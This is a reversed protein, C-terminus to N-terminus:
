YKLSKNNKKIKKKTLFKITKKVNPFINNWLFFSHAAQNVLMGIGNFVKNSGFNKCFKMFNTNKEKYFMDYCITEKRIINEPILPINNFIGASTANVIINFKMQNLNKLTISEINGFNQFEKSLIKAKNFTRNTIFINCGFKLLPYIIGRAAGGAGIILINFKRKVIKKLLLDSLFGIGDTNDGLITENEFLKLTNISGAIKARNTIEHCLSFVKEKFPLTINAGKGGRKFFFSINKLFNKKSLHIKIYKQNLNYLKYFFNHIEPSKSHSIPNGFVAYIKKEYLNNM